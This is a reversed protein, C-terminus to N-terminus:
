SPRCREPTRSSSSTTPKRTTLGSLAGRGNRSHTSHSPTVVRLASDETSSSLIPLLKKSKPLRLTGHQSDDPAATENRKGRKEKAHAALSAEGGFGVPEQQLRGIGIRRLKGCRQGTAFSEEDFPSYALPSSLHAATVYFLTLLGLTIPIGTAAALLGNKREHALRLTKGLLIGVCATTVIAAMFRSLRGPEPDYFSNVLLTAALLASFLLPIALLVGKKGTWSLVHKDRLFCGAVAASPQVSRTCFRSHAGFRRRRRHFIWTRGCRCAGDPCTDM